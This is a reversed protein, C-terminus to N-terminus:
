LCRPGRIGHGKPTAQIDLDGTTQGDAQQLNVIIPRLDKSAALVVKAKGGSDDKPEAASPLFAMNGRAQRGRQHAPTDWYVGRAERSPLIAENDIWALPGVHRCANANFWAARAAELDGNSLAGALGRM